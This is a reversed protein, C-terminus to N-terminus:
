ELRQGKYWSRFTELCFRQAGLYKLAYGANHGEAVPMGPLLFIQRQAAYAEVLTSFGPKTIVSVCEKMIDYLSDCAGRIDVRPEGGWIRLFDQRLAENTGCVVTVQLEKIGSLLQKVLKVAEISSVQGWFGAVFLVHNRSGPCHALDAFEKRYLLPADLFKLPEPFPLRLATRPLSSIFGTLQDWLIYKWGLNTGFETLVGYLKFQRQTRKKLLALWFAQRHSVAIVTRYGGRVIEKELVSLDTATLHEERFLKRWYFFPIRYIIHLLFTFYNSIFKYRRNDEEVASAPLFPEIQVHAVDCHGIRQKLAEGISINGAGVSSSMILVPGDIQSVAKDFAEMLNDQM